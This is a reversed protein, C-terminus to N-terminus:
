RGHAGGEAESPDLSAAPLSLSETDGFEAKLKELARGLVQAVANPSRGMRKAIEALRMGKIRALLIVERYEPSLSELAQQLRDFREKRRVRHSPSSADSCIDAPEISIFNRRRERKAIRLIENTAIGKLWRLFSGEGRWAFAPLSQLAKTFSEQVVDEVDVRSRLHSGVRARVYDLLPARHLDFLKERASPLGDIAQRILQLTAQDESM